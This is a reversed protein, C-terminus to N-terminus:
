RNFVFPMEGYAKWNIKTKSSEMATKSQAITDQIKKLLFNNNSTGDPESSELLQRQLLSELVDNKSWTESDGEIFSDDSDYSNDSLCSEEDSIKDPRSCCDEENDNDHYRSTEENFFLM